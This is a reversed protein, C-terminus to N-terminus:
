LVQRGCSLHPATLYIFLYKFFLFLDHQEHWLHPSATVCLLVTNGTKM